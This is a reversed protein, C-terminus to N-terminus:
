SSQSPSGEATTASSRRKAQARKLSLSGRAREKEERLAERHAKDVERKSKKLSKEKEKRERAQLLSIERASLEEQVQVMSGEEWKGEKRLREESLKFVQKPKLSLPILPQIKTLTEEFRKIFDDRVIKRRERDVNIGRSSCKELRQLLDVCHREFVEWRGDKILAEKVRNFVRLAVDSDAANYWEPQERSMLKWAPMDPCYFTAAYKLGMPLSPELFHFAVMGDYIRGEVPCGNFRLRPVDFPCNWALKPGGTALMQRVFPKFTADFPVSIAKGEEFAFSIRLVQYSADDELVPDMGEDKFMKAYPTEIDFSLLPFGEKAYQYYFAQADMLSPRTIYKKPLSPIGKRAVHLAKQLDLQWVRALEFNGRMIYSPHYTPIVPGYMTEFIYGRLTDIGWKDTFWRLPQNGMTLIAKPKFGNIIKQLYTACHDIASHEYSAGTLINGPPQCNVINALLFDDRKLARGLVEDHTRTVMRNFLHGTGGVLPLGAIAEERGLAEAVILVRTTDGKGDTLAFGTGKLALPCGKCETPKTKM